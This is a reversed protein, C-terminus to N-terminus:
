ANMGAPIAQKIAASSPSIRRVGFFYDSLFRPRWSSGVEGAAMLDGGSHGSDAVRTPGPM